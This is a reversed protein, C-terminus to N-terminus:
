PARGGACRGRHQEDLLHHVHRQRDRVARVDHALPADHHVSGGGFDGLMALEDLRVVEAGCRTSRTAATTLPRRRAHGRAFRDGQAGGRRRTRTAWPHLGGDVLADPGPEGVFAVDHRIATSRGRSRDARCGTPCTPPSCDPRAPPRADRDDMLDVGTRRAHRDRRGVDARRPRPGDHRAPRGSRAPRSTRTSAVRVHEVDRRRGRARREVADLGVLDSVM